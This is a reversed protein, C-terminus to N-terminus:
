KDKGVRFANAFDRLSRPPKSHVLHTLPILARRYAQELRDLLKGLEETAPAYTYSSGDGQARFVGDMAFRELLAQAMPTSVYVRQAVEAPTWHREPASHLLILTELETVSDIRAIVYRRVDPPIDRDDGTM